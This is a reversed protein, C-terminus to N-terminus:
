IGAVVRRKRQSKRLLHDLPRAVQPQIVLRDFQQATMVRHALRREFENVAIVNATEQLSIELVNGVCTSKGLRARRGDGSEASRIDMITWALAIRKDLNPKRKIKHPKPTIAWRGRVAELAAEVGDLRGAVTSTIGARPTPGNSALC